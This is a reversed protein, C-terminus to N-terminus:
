LRAKLNLVKSSWCNITFAQFHDTGAENLLLASIPPFAEICRRAHGSGERADSM